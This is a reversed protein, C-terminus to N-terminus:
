NIQFMELNKSLSCWEVCPICFNLLIKPLYSAITTELIFM